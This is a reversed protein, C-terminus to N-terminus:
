NRIEDYSLKKRLFLVTEIEYINVTENFEHKRKSSFKVQEGNEKTAVYHYIPLGDSEIGGLPIMGLPLSVLLDLLFGQKKTIKITSTETFQIIKVPIPTKTDKGIFLHNFVLTLLKLSGFIGIILLCGYLYEM